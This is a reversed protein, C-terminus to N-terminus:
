IQSSIQYWISKFTILLNLNAHHCRVIQAFMRDHIMKVVNTNDGHLNSKHHSKTHILRLTCCLCQMMVVIEDVTKTNDGHLDSKHHSKTYILKSDSIGIRTQNTWIHMIQNAKQFRSTSMLFSSHTSLISSIEGAATSDSTLPPPSPDLGM